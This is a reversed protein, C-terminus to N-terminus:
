MMARTFSLGASAGVAAKVSCRAPLLEPREHLVHDRQHRDEGDDDGRHGRSPSVVSDAAIPANKVMTSAASYRAKVM